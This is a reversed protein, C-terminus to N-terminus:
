LNELSFFSSPISPIPHKIKIIPLFALLKSAPMDGMDQTLRVSYQTKQKIYTFSPENFSNLPKTEFTNM